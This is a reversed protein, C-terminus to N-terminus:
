GLRTLVDKLLKMNDPNALKSQIESANFDLSSYDEKITDLIGVVSNKYNYINDITTYVDNKIKDFEKEEINNLIMDYIGSNILIDYLKFPDEKMKDTFTLNTYAYTIELVLYLEVKIPNYFGNDDNSYNIV